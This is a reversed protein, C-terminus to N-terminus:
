KFNYIVIQSELSPTMELLAFQFGELPKGSIVQIIQNGQRKFSLGPKKGNNDIRALGREDVGSFYFYEEGQAVTLFFIDPSDSLVTIKLAALIEGSHGGIENICSILM